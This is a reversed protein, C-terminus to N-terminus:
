GFEFMENENHRMRKQLQNIIQDQQSVFKTFDSEPLKLQKLEKVDKKM